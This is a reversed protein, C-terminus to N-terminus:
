RLEWIYLQKENEKEKEKKVIQVCKIIQLQTVEKSARYASYTKHFSKVINKKFMCLM